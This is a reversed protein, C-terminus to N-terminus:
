HSCESAPSKREQDKTNTLYNGAELIARMKSRSCRLRGGVWQCSGSCNYSIDNGHVWEIKIWDGKPNTFTKGSLRLPRVLRAMCGSGAGRAFSDQRLRM